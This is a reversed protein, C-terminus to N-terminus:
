INLMWKGARDTCCFKRSDHISSRQSFHSTWKSTTKTSITHNSRQSSETYIFYVYFYKWNLTCPHKAVFFILLTGGACFTSLKEYVEDCLQGMAIHKCSLCIVGENKRHGCQWKYARKSYNLISLASILSSKVFFFTSMYIKIAEQARRQLSLM